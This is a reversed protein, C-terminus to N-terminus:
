AAAKHLEPQSSAAPAPLAPAATCHLFLAAGLAGLVLAAVGLAGYGLGGVLAGGLFPGIASGTMLMAPTAAVLRGTPELRALWGFAFTHTFIMVASFSLAAAVYGQVWPSNTLVFALAAQLVPGVMLVTRVRWRRELWAALPAPVLNILGLAILVGSMAGTDLGHGAGIREMFSFVIAQVLAMCAVGAAGAWARAGFAAREHSPVHQADAAGAPFAVACALAAVGMVGAFLLFLTGPGHAAILGPSAGLFVTAFLGLALGAWAFLRHPHASRGIAGHTLSLGLAAGAGAVAHWLALEGFSPLRSAMLFAGAAVAYGISALLPGSRHSWWRATALSTLVAGLLFLTALGGAHPADLGHGSMLTGVWVPLAVLDIMGACHAVLLAVRAPLRETTHM